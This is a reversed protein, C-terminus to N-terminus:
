SEVERIFNQINLVKRVLEEDIPKEATRELLEYVETTSKKMEEDTAIEENELSEKVKEKLRSIEENMYIKFEVGNDAFSSVFKGLLMKQDDPLTTSYAENFKDVFSKYVVNDVSKMDESPIEKTMTDIVMNEMLVRSKPQSDRNFIQAITALYKYNGVFNSFVSKSLKKNIRNILATQEKFLRERDLSEYDKKVEQLVRIAISRDDETSENLHRYLDLEKRLEKGRKFFETVIITIERKREEDKTVIAKTMEQSLAEFIFATNRKKNHKAKM